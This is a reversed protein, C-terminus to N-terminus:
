EGEYELLTYVDYDRLLERGKLDILDIVFGFGVVTAGAKECLHAAALATGGTALLDDVIFVKDGEKLADEHICLTNTGYELSYEETIQARPLKGPKRIPIFGVNLKSAVPCGFIFGRAEPGAIVTAGLEKAHQVLKDTAYNFASGDAILPTVDRFIIGQKPFNEINAVYNKLEM